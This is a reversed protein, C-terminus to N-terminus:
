GVSFRQRTVIGDTYRDEEYATQKFATVTKRWFASAYEAGAIQKIEWTGPYMSGILHAFRM